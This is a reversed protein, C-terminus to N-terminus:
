TVPCGAAVWADWGGDLVAVADHGAWRLMWWQRAAYPGGSADYAVVQSRNTLGLDTMRRAFADPVPLPHRGNRGTKTGSLDEDLHVFRAGPIHSERYARRGAATDALDHRCDLIVWDPEALRTRLTEVDILTTYPSNINPMDGSGFTG